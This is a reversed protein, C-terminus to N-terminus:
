NRVAGFLPVLARPPQVRLDRGLDTPHLVLTLLTFIEEQSKDGM